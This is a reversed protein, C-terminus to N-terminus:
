RQLVKIIPTLSEIIPNILIVLLISVFLFLFRNKFCVGGQPLCTNDDM